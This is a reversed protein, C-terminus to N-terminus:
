SSRCPCAQVFRLLKKLLMAAVNVLRQPGVVEAPLRLLMQKGGQGTVLVRVASKMAQLHVDLRGIAVGEGGFEGQEDAQLGVCGALMGQQLLRHGIQLLGLFLVAVPTKRRADIFM